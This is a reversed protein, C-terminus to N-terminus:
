LYSFKRDKISKVDLNNQSAEPSTNHDQISLFKDSKIQLETNRTKVLTSRFLNGKIGYGFRYGRNSLENMDKSKKRKVYAHRTPSLDYSSINYPTDNSLTLERPYRKRFLSGKKIPKENM